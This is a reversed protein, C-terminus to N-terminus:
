PEADPADPPAAPNPFGRSECIRRLIAPFEKIMYADLQVARSRGGLTFDLEVHGRAAYDDARLGTMAGWPILPRGPMKLGADTLTVRTLVVRIFQAALVLAVVSLACGIVTQWRLDTESHTGPRWQASDIRGRATRLYLHGGPGVYYVDDDHRFSPEGLRATVAELNEQPGLSEAVRTAAHASVEHNVAPLPDLDLGLSQVLDRVNDEPYKVLGDWLYWAAFGSVLVLMFGARVIREMTTGSTIPEM